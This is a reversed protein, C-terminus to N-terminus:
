TESKYGRNNSNYPLIHKLVHKKSVILHKAKKRLKIQELNM